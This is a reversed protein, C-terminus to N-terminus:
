NVLDRTLVINRAVNSRPAPLSVEHGNLTVRTGAANGITLFEVREAAQWRERRGSKLTFPPQKEGDVEVELWTDARAEVEVLLPGPSEPASTSAASPKAPSTALGAPKSAPPQAASGATKPETPAVLPASASASPRAGSHEPLESATRVAAPTTEGGAATPSVTATEAPAAEVPPVTATPAAERPASTSSTSPTPLAPPDGAVNQETATPHRGAVVSSLASAGTDDGTLPLYWVMGVVLLVAVGVLAIGVRRLRRSQQARDTGFLRQERTHQGGGHLSYYAGVVEEPDLGICQAYARLFGVAFPVPPLREYEDREIAELFKLQIKTVASIDRLSVQQQERERRLLTGLSEVSGQM